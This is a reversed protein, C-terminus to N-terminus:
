QNEFVKGDVVTKEVVGKITMGAFPSYKAKTEFKEPVIKWEKNMDVVVFDAMYQTEIKGRKGLGFIRVANASTIEILKKIDMRRHAVENLLLPLSTELGPFGSPAQRYKANKEGLSHPAHDTGICDVIDDAIALRIADNDQRTRIPPNVKGYNGVKGMISEELLFHHPSVECYIPAYRKFDRILEIEEATSTHVIMTKCGVDNALRLIQQTGEIACSRNRIKNHNTAVQELPKKAWEDLCCQKESHVAIMQDYKLALRFFDRIQSDARVVENSSSGALFLKIGAVDEPKQAFIEEVDRINSTTAAVYFKKNILSKDAFQRKLNLNALNTIAPLNNPMDFVFTTGGALAANSGTTWDEKYAQELDRLHVHTDVIGPIIIKNNVDIINDAQKTDNGIYTIVKNEVLLNKNSGDIIGNTFLTKM